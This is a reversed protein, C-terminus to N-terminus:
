EVVMSYQKLFNDKGIHLLLIKQRLYETTRHPFASTRPQALTDPGHHASGAGWGWCICSFYPIHTSYIRWHIGAARKSRCPCLVRGEGVAAESSGQCVPCGDQSHLRWLTFPSWLIPPPEQSNERGGAAESADCSEMGSRNIKLSHQSHCWFNALIALLYFHPNEKKTVERFYHSFLVSSDLSIEQDNKRTFNSSTLFLFLRM